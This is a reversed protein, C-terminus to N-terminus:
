IHEFHTKGKGILTQFYTNIKSNVQACTRVVNDSSYISILTCINNAVEEYKVHKTLHDDLSVGKYTMKNLIMSDNYYGNKIMADIDDKVKNVDIKGNVHLDTDHLYERVQHGVANGMRNYVLEIVYKAVELTLNNAYKEYLVDLLMNFNRYLEEQNKVLNTIVTNVKKNQNSYRWQKVLDSIAPILIVLLAMSYIMWNPLFAFSNLSELNEM